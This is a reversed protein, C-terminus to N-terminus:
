LPFVISPTISCSAHEPKSFCSYVRSPLYKCRHFAKYCLKINFLRAKYFNQQLGLISRSKLQLSASELHYVDLKLTCRTVHQHTHPVTCKLPVMAPISLYKRAMISLHPFHRNHYNWWQLRDESCQLELCLYNNMIEVMTGASNSSPLTNSDRPSKIVDELLSM